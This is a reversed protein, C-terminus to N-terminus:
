LFAKVLTDHGRWPEWVPLLRYVEINKLFTFLFVLLPMSVPYLFHESLM